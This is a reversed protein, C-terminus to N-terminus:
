TSRPLTPPRGLTWPLASAWLVLTPGAYLWKWLRTPRAHFVLLRGDWTSTHHLDLLTLVLRGTARHGPVSLTISYVGPAVYTGEGTTHWTPSGLVPSTARAHLSARIRYPGWPSTSANGTSSPRRDVIRFRVTLRRTGVEVVSPTGELVHVGYWQHRFVFPLGTTSQLPHAPISTDLLYVNGNMTTVVLDMRGDEDLDEALVMSYSTEGLDRVDACGTAGDVLYLIGDFALVVLHLSPRGELLKVPLVPAAIRGRARFPFPPVPRGDVGRLVHIHGTSTGLVVELAGDGDVDAVSVAQSVMGNVHREWLREGDSGRFAVVDGSTDSALLEIRGDLDVDVAVVQAQIEGMQKPWGTRTSGDANLVYLFGMSTGLVIELTGDLDLDVLTPASYAYARYFTEDTSLDLHQHWKVTGNALDYVLLSSAVYKSAQVGELRWAHLPNDYRERDFFHSLAVVLELRGDGDVDGLAPTCLVHPDIKVQGDELVPSYDDWWDEDWLDDDVDMGDRRGTWGTEEEYEDEEYYAADEELGEFMGDEDEHIEGVEDVEREDDLEDFVEFSKAAEESLQHKGPEVQVEAQLLSRAKRDVVSEREGRAEEHLAKAIDEESLLAAGADGTHTDRRGVDPDQRDVHDKRLGVYWGEKVKLSPLRFSRDKMREGNDKFALVHGEYTALLVDLVGDEDVDYLLPSAHVDSPHEAPWGPLEEGTSGRIVELYRHFSPVVISKSGDGFFDTILPTAYVSSRTPKMWRVEVGAPCAESATGGTRRRQPDTKSASEGGALFCAWLFATTWRKKGCM